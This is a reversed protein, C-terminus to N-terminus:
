LFSFDYCPKRLHVQPLIMTSVRFSRFVRSSPVSAAPAPPCARGEPGGGRPVRGGRAAAARRASSVDRRPARWPVVTPVPSRGRGRPPAAGREVISVTRSEAVSIEARADIFFTAFHSVQHSNCFGAFWRTKSRLNRGLGDPRPCAQRPTVCRTAGRGVRAGSASVPGGRALAAPRLAPRRRPRARRTTSPLASEACALRVGHGGAGLPVPGKPVGCPARAGGGPRALRRAGRGWTLRPWGGLKLM